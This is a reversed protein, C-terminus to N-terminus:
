IGSYSVKDRPMNRARWAEDMMLGKFRAERILFGDVVFFIMLLRRKQNKPGHLIISKSWFLFPQCLWDPIKGLDSCCATLGGGKKCLRKKEIDRYM